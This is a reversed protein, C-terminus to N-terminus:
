KLECSELLLYERKGMTEVSELLLLQDASVPANLKENIIPIEKLNSWQKQKIRGLTVHVSFAKMEKRKVGLEREIDETLKKLEESMQGKLWFMRARNGNEEPGLVIKDFMIDFSKNQCGVRALAKCIDPIQGDDVYGLFQLTLHLHDEKTWIVPLNEWQRIKQKARKKLDKPLDVAIFIKRRM